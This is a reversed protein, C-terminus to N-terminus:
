KESFTFEEFDGLPRYGIKQYISNSTPNMLDTFLVAYKYGADLIIRSLAAVCATAYGRRRHEPPTYVMGITETRRTPRTQAAMTVPQGDDWIFLEQNAIRPEFNARAEDLTSAVQVAEKNFEVMWQAMLELDADTALRLKGSAPPPTIVEDLSYLRMNRNITLEADTLATWAQAFLQSTTSPGNVGPLKWDHHHLTEAMLILDDDNRTSSTVLRFPPTMMATAVIQGQDNDAITVFVNQQTEGRERLRLSIGLILSNLEEHAELFPQANDLFEAATKYVTALM